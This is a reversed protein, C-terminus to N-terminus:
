VYLIWGLVAARRLIQLLSRERNGGELRGTNYMEWDFWFMEIFFRNILNVHNRDKTSRGFKMKECFLDMVPLITFLFPLGISPALM